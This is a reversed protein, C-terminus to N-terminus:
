RSTINKIEEKNFAIYKGRFGVAHDLCLKGTNLQRLILRKQLRDIDEGIIQQLRPM